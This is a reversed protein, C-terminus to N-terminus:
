AWSVPHCRPEKRTPDTRGADGFAGLADEVEGARVAAEARSMLGAYDVTSASETSACAALLLLPALGALARVLRQFRFHVGQLMATGSGATKRVTVIM